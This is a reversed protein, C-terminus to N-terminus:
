NDSRSRQLKELHQEQLQILKQVEDEVDFSKDSQVDTRPSGNIYPELMDLDQNSCFCSYAHYILFLILIVVIAILIYTYSAKNDPGLDITKKISDYDVLPSRNLENNKEM